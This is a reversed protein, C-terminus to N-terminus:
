KLEKLKNSYLEKTYEINCHKEVTKLNVKSNCTNIFKILRQTHENYISIETPTFSRIRLGSTVGDETKIGKKVYIQVEKGIWENPNEGYLDSLTKCCTKNFFMPKITECM